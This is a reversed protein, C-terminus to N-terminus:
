RSESINLFADRDYFAGKHFQNLREKGDSDTVSTWYGETSKKWDQPPQVRYFLDDAEGLIKFGLTELESKSDGSPNLRRALLWEPNEAIVRQSTEEIAVNERSTKGTVTIEDSVDELNPYNPKYKVM